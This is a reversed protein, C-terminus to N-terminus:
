SSRLLTQLIPSPAFPKFSGEPQALRDAIVYLTLPNFLFGLHSTPVHINERLVLNPELCTQWAVIGDTRSYISSFPVPTEPENKWPTTPVQTPIVAEGRLRQALRLLLSINTSEHTAYLPSGLTVVSRLDAADQFALARSIVGGLSWGVLSVRKNHKNRLFTIRQHLKTFLGARRGLNIGEQWGYTPYGRNKLFRRVPLTASDGAGFGPLVMVPQGDGKPYRRLAPTAALYAGMELLARGELLALVLGPARQAKPFDPIEEAYRPLSTM